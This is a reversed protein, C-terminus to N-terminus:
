ESTPFGHGAFVGVGKEKLFEVFLPAERHSSSKILAASIEKTILCDPPVPVPLLNSSEPWKLMDQWIIIADVEQQGALELLEEVTSSMMVINEKLADSYPCKQIIKYSIKGLANMNKNGLAIRMEPAALDAFSSINKPNDNHVAIVPVHQALPVVMGFLKQEKRIYNTSGPIYIDGEGSKKIANLLTQSGAYVMKIQVDHEKEYMTKLEELAKGLASGAYIVMPDQQRSCGSVGSMILLLLAIIIYIRRNRM